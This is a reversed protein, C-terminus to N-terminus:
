RTTPLGSSVTEGYEQEVRVRDDFHVTSVEFFVCDELAEVRHPAGPPIHFSQGPLMLTRMLTGTGPDHHVLARGSFLYFTEEKDQHYQLGGATGSNMLLIKGLCTDQHAVLIEQGWDREGMSRPRFEKIQKFRSPSQPQSTQLDM